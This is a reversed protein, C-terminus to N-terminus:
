DLGLLIFLPCQKHKVLDHLRDHVNLLLLLHNDTFCVDEPSTISLVTDGRKKRRHNWAHTGQGSSEKKPTHETWMRAKRVEVRFTPPAPEESVNTDPDM